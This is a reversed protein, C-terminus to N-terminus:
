TRLYKQARRSSPYSRCPEVSVMLLDLLQWEPHTSIEQELQAMAGLADYYQITAYCDLGGFPLLDWYNNGIGAGPVITKKGDSTRVVGSTGEHGVWTTYVCKRKRTDFERMAFAMAQRMRGIQSKLFAVDGTWWFYEGCGRIFNSNNINHRSDYATHFSEIM